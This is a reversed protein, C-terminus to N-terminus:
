NRVLRTDPPVPLWGQNPNPRTRAVEPTTFSAREILRTRQPPAHWTIKDNLDFAPVRLRPQRDSATDAPVSPPADRRPVVSDPRFSERETGEEPGFSNSPPPEYDESGRPRFGEDAPPTQMPSSGPEDVFTRPRAGSPVGM